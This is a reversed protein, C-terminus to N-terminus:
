QRLKRRKQSGTRPTPKHTQLLTSMGHSRVKKKVKRKVTPRAPPPDVPLGLRHGLEIINDTGFMYRRIDDELDLKTKFYEGYDPFGVAPSRAMVGARVWREVLTYLHNAQKRTLTEKKIMTTLAPANPTTTKTQM